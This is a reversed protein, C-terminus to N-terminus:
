TLPRYIQSLFKIYDFIPIRVTDVVHVSYDDNNRLLTSSMFTFLPMISHLVLDPTIEALSAAILLATNQVPTNNTSRICDVLIDVRVSAQDLPAPRAGRSTDVIALLSSLILTQMYALDSGIRAKFSQMEGLVQFLIGLLSQHHQPHSAEVIELIFTARQLTSELDNTGTMKPNGEGAHSIRRKKMPPEHNQRSLDLLRDLFARLIETSLSIHRILETADSQVIDSETGTDTQAMATDLLFLATETQNENRMRSWMKRLRKFLAKVLSVRTSVRPDALIKQLALLGDKRNPSLIGVMESDVEEEKLTEASCCAQVEEESLDAWSVLLPLLTDTRYIDGVRDIRNLLKLIKIKVLYISCNFAHSSLSLFLATRVATKIHVRMPKEEAVEQTSKRLCNEIVRCIHAGSLICEELNKVIVFELISAVDKLSPLWVLTKTSNLPGYLEEKAWLSDDDCKKRSKAIKKYCNNLTAALESAEQRVKLEPDALAVLIFPLLAQVDKLPEGITNFYKTIIRLASSRVSSPYPGCWVCVFFSFYLPEDFAHVRRLIPLHEYIESKGAAVALIFTQLLSAYVHSKTTALFSVEDVTSAPIEMLAAEFLQEPDDAISGLRDMAIDEGEIKNELAPRLSRRFRIELSDMDINTARSAAHVSEKLSESSLLYGLLDAYAAFASNSESEGFRIDADRVASFILGLSTREQPSTLLTADLIERLISLNLSANMDETQELLGRVLSLALKDVRLKERLLVLQPVLNDMNILAKMLAPSLAAKERTQALVALCIIGPTITEQTWCSVVAEMLSMSLTDSLFSRSALVTVIMYCGVRLEPVRKMSLGQSLTPLIRMVVDQERTKELRERGSRAHDLMRAVAETAVGAWFSLLGHYEHGVESIKIVHHNLTAFFRIDNTAAHVIAHRPPNTLSRIYPHLFKLASPVDEPLISLLVLFINTTHYPLFM